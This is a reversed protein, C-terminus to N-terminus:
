ATSGPTPASRGDIAHLAHIRDTNAELKLIQRDKFKLPERYMLAQARLEDLVLDCEALRGSLRAIEVRLATVQEQNRSAAAAGAGSGFLALDETRVKGTAVLDALLVMVRGNDGLRTQWNNKKANRDITDTSCHCLKAADDRYIWESDGTPTTQTTTM